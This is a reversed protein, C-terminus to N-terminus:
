DACELKFVRASYQKPLQVSLIGAETNWQWSCEASCPYGLTVKVSKGKFREMPLVCTEEASNTRWVALHTRNGCQQALSIWGHEMLPLGLPWFPFAHKLDGRISKYYALGESVLAKNEPSIQSLQGSLHIRQLMANVMNFAAEEANGDKLPYSWVACQEPTCATPSAAAIAAYKRYDTQDSSSQISLRSLLAYNMRLGGSACNEIVLDPHRKFVKDLWDIYARNHGLLGDGFSDADIETGIGANMNYDMKIYGVGYENVLRDVVSDAHARVEPNRYDLQYRGNDIIRKGHRVFFWDDPVKSALPCNPGMVELELWLGPTMRKSRIYDLIEGIGNPFRESSPLWEGLEESWSKNIGGHWGADICYYECGVEAAADVLPIEKETTPDAWLCNMYDNFIVPLNENDKNARRIARRYKVLECAAETIEGVISGVAVPVSVFSEGPALSKWWHNENENPGSVKLYLDDACGGIEWQWSGDHDIQWFLTTHAETNEFAGMPLFDNCSWTGNVCYSLRKVTGPTLPFTTPTVPYMGLEPLSSQAWRIEGFWTSHPVHLACKDQWGLLGEKALCGLSFSTLYEMGLPSNGINTVDTWCRAIQINDYFQFHSTVRLEECQQVLELKRGLSNRYDKHETYVLCGGPQTSAHKAGHNGGQNEGTVQLELLRCFSKHREDILEEQFPLASFHLLSVSGSDAIEIVLNIGNESIKILHM